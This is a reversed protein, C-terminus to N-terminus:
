INLPQATGVITVTTGNPVLKYLIDMDTNKLAICGDTWDIGKGGDGHIEILNGIDASAAIVANKKNEAFREKDEKNPYDLLLAKYFKTQGNSKKRIVKYMGEPTSKDGQQMKDGMWNVGLEVTFKHVPKGDKYLLCERMLKDIIICYSKNRKSQSITQEVLESWKPHDNLYTNYKDEYIVFIRNISTEASDLKIKCGTYNKNKFALVGEQYQLKSETIENRLETSIPFNGYKQDFEQIKKGLKDIRNELIDEVASVNKMARSIAREASQSSKEAFTCIAEYNRFLIFRENEMGWVLMASDYYESAM